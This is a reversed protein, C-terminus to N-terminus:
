MQVLLEFGRRARGVSIFKQWHQDRLRFGKLNPILFNPTIVVGESFSPAWMKAHAKRRCFTMTRIGLASALHGVGSDNGIFYGSQYIFRALEDLTPFDVVEFGIDSWHALDKAGPVFVPQFGEERLYFALKVFKEKPWNRTEKASTPHIVVRKPFKQLVLGEPVIFGNSRALKPLHMVRECLIRMNQAISVKPDTLCDAYYPENVINPSPYLYLIKMREPFRRKGEEILRKIFENSNNWVVFYWDYAHLISPLESQDPYPKVPLHPFWNQMSGITNQHTEVIFGNLHLNHSLVLGNIGDGLGNHFFVGAKPGM